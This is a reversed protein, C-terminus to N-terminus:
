VRLHSGSTWVAAGGAAGSQSNVLLANDGLEQRAVELAAPVSSAFYTKTQMIPNSGSFHSKIGAPIENHALFFLNPLRPSGGGAAPFLPVFFQHDRRDAIRPLGVGRGFRDLLIACHTPALALSSNSEGHEVGSEAFRELQPDLFYAPLDGNANLYPKVVVRRIAQRVYDTLLVPNRTAPAAEGLAELISVSDRISVRERLLNQFVRQVTALPLLKPVLDEVVKANEVSVRDLM